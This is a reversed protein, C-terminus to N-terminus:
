FCAWIRNGLDVVFETRFYSLTVLGLVIAAILAALGQRTARRMATM